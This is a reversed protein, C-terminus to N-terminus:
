YSDRKKRLSFRLLCLININNYFITFSAYIDINKEKQSPQPSMAVVEHMSKKSIKPLNIPFEGFPSFHPQLIKKSKWPKYNQNASKAILNRVYEDAQLSSVLIEKRSFLSEKGIKPLM